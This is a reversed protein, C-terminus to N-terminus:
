NVKFGYIIFGFKIIKLKNIINEIQKYQKLPYEVDLM